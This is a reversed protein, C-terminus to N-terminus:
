EMNKNSRTDPPISVYECNKHADTHEARVAERTPTAFDTRWVTIPNNVKPPTLNWGRLTIPLITMELASGDFLYDM